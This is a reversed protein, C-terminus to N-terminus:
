TISGVDASTPEVVAWVRKGDDAIQDVGSDRSLARVLILGRGDEANPDRAVPAATRLDPARDSAEDHVDVRVGSGVRRLLLEFPPRGHRVANGVLESVVLTLPELMVQLNWRTLSRRTHARAVGAATADPPLGIRQVVPRGNAAERTM